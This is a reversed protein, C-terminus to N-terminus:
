IVRMLPGDEPDLRDRLRDIIRRESPVPLFLSKNDEKVDYYWSNYKPIKIDMDIPAFSQITAHDRKDTLHFVQIYDAESFAFRTLWVPRQSLVIVPIRLSRGQTLIADFADGKLQYGEDVWLGVSGREWLKWLQANVQEGQAPHPRVVYLGERDPVFDLGVEQAPLAAIHDDGKFDYVMWPISLDQRSLHWLAAM